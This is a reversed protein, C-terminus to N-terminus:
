LDGAPCKFVSNRIALGLNIVPGCFMLLVPIGFIRVHAMQEGADKIRQGLRYISGKSLIV